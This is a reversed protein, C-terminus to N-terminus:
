VPLVKLAANYRLMRDDLGNLGGNIIKTITKMDSRDAHENLNHSNWFWCASELAGKETCMYACLEDIPMSISKAFKTYNEKGTLQILGRGCFKYGEGTSEVGNGMRGGYIRNAIKEPRHEYLKATALDHFYKPFVQCLREAKYNLNEHLVTFGGSEHGCQAIFAAVRLKNNIQYKPLLEELLAHWETKKPCTILHGVQDATFKYTM